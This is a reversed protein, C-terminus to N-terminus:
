SVVIEDQIEVEDVDHQAVEVEEVDDQLDEVDVVVVYPVCGGEVMEHKVIDVEVVNIM